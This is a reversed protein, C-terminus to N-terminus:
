LTRSGYTPSRQTGRTSYNNGGNNSVSHNQEQAVGIPTTNDNNHQRLCTYRTTRTCVVPLLTYNVQPLWRSTTCHLVEFPTPTRNTNFDLSKSTVKIYCKRQKTCEGIMLWSKIWIKLRWIVFRHIYYQWSLSPFSKYANYTIFQTEAELSQM